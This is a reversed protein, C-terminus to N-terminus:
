ERTISNRPALSATSRHAANLFQTKRKRKLSEEGQILAHQSVPFSRGLDSAAFNVALDIYPQRHNRGLAFALADIDVGVFENM